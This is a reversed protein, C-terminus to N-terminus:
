RPKGARRDWLAACEAARPCDSDDRHRAGIRCAACEGRAVAALEEEIDVRVAVAQGEPTM